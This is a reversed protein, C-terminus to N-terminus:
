RQGARRDRHRVDKLRDVFREGWHYYAKLLVETDSNSFFTYGHRQELEARLERHNYVCGNFVIALGLQSDVMPQAGSESLDIIRLRRHALAVHGQAWAGSGDPGRDSMTAAMRTVAATDADAGGFRIEGAIGCMRNITATAPPRCM